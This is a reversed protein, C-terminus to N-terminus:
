AEDQGAREGAPRPGFVASVACTFGPLVDLGDLADAESLAAADGDAQYVDVMRTEPHVVWVLRVCGSREPTGPDRKVM